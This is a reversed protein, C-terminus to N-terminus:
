LSVVVGGKVGMIRERETPRKEKKRERRNRNEM